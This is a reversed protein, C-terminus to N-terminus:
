APGTSMAARYAAVHAEASAAWSFGGATTLAARSAADHAPGAATVLGRAIDAVDLPDVLAGAGDAFEAMSTGASTVVPVGHAMAELVPMGFGEWTSPFAFARAGAYATQLDAHDLRGLLHVRDGPLEERAAVVEDATGGWGAPGVLVLDADIERSHLAEGYAALLRSVNKRPELTGVWLIYPRVVGFRARWADQRQPEVADARVGHPVVHIRDPAIGQGVCDDRTTASPVVVVAAEDRVHHLARTFFRTGRRTFHTPDRLFALDHVTVVLPASRGPIAWTTAHVVDVPGALAEARPRRLRDWADYLARRPLRSFRVPGAPAPDPAPEGAHRAALGILRVDERAALARTLEVVYSGSGGPTRQWCQEVTVAARLPEVRWM